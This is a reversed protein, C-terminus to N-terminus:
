ESLTKSQPGGIVVEETAQAGPIYWDHGTM